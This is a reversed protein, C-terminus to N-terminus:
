GPGVSPQQLSKPTAWCTSRERERERQGDRERGRERKRGGEKGIEREEKERGGM